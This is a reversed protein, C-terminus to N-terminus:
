KAPLMVTEYVTREDLFWRAAAKVNAVTMRALMPKPDVLPVPDDGFRAANGLLGIWYGNTKLEHEHELAYSRRLKELREESVGEAAVKVLVGRAATVLEGVRAPDATFSVAFVREAHPSRVLYGNASVGYVGSLQERLVERLQDRLVRTLVYADRARDRSWASQDAHFLMSVQAKPEQGLEWSRKVVGGVRRIKQDVEREVRGKAPLSGLYTEVLPRLKAVEVSGAIVFTFDTADGFRARYFALARDLDIGRVDAPRADMRRPHKSWEVEDSRRGFQVEPSADRNELQQILNSRWVAFADPDRRPATMKLYVLQLMTELAAVSSRGSVSETVEGISTSASATKGALVKRLVDADLEGVGGQEAIAAAFRAHPWEAASAAATGGPSSGSLYVADAEFDTPKVLVRVGNALTWETVGLAAIAREATVAGPVPAAAMLTAPVAEAQWPEVARAEAEAIVALVRDASPLPKGEPGSITIARNAPGDFGSRALQNLVDLSISPLHQVLLDREGVRGIMFEGELFNRVIEGAHDSSRQTAVRHVSDEADQLIDTRARDLEAQTFGHLAIRRVETVLAAIAEEVRGGKVNASRTFADIARTAEGFGVSAYLFPSDARRILTGLRENAIRAYIREITMRRFDGVTGEGQHPRQSAITVLQATQEKDTEISVRVPGNAPVGGGPRPRPATAKPLTGFQEEIQRRIGDVDGIDGVVIVAMLDPRYWDKYYRVFADRPATRLIEPLGIPLREAYRTGQFLTKVHKDFLRRSAGRGRRWEELVVGREKDVEAPDFTLEGAWDRLVRLGDTLVAPDKTPVELTYITEDFSTSANLDAGFRMGIGEIFEIVANKPFHTTGNFAMHEVFHALGRQDDDEQVSGADVALWLLARQEPRRNPMIYYTLGNPLTGRTVAPWLALVPDVPAAPPTVAPPAPPVIRPAPNSSCAATVAVLGIMARIAMASDQPPGAACVLM